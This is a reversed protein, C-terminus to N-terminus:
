NQVYENQFFTQDNFIRSAPVQDLRVLSLQNFTLYFSIEAQFSYAARVGNRHAVTYLDIDIRLSGCENSFNFVPFIVDDATRGIKGFLRVNKGSVEIM